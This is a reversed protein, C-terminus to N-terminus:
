SFKSQSALCTFTANDTKRIQLMYLDTANINGVSPATGGLWKPTVANGDITYGTAYYATSGNPSEFVVTISDGIQMLSDLTNTSDGRVNITYNGTANSTIVNASSTVIDINVIGNAPTSSINIKEKPSVLLLSDSLDFREDISNWDIGNGALDPYGGTTGSIADTIEVDLFNEDVLPLWEGDHAFYMKGTDHDHAMAGHATSAEPFSDLDPYYFSIRSATNNPTTIVGTFDAGSLNAKDNTLKKLHGAISYSLPEAPDTAAADYTYSGYHYLKLAAQIDAADSLGPIKTNFPGSGDVTNDINEEAV